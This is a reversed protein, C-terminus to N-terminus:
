SLLYYSVWHLYLTVNLRMRSDKNGHFLLLYYKNTQTHMRAHRRSHPYRRMPTSTHTLAYLRTLVAHLAYAGYQSTMQSGETEMMDKSMIVYVTCKESFFNNVIFYTNQNERCRKDLVNGM